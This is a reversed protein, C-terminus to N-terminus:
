ILKEITKAIKEGASYPVFRGPLSSGDIHKIDYASFLTKDAGYPSSALEFYVANKKMRKIHESAFVREPVTNFIFDKDKVADILEYYNVTNFGLCQAINHQSDKRACVTVSINLRSLALSLAKGTRGFGTILAKCRSVEKETNSLLLLLAGQATLFANYVLFDENSNLDYYVIRKRELQYTLEKGLSGGFVIQDASLMEVLTPCNLKFNENKCYIKENDKSAPVPLIVYRCESLKENLQETSNNVLECCYGDESLVTYIYEQRKDGGLIIIPEKKM